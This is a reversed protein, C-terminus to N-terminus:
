RYERYPFKPKNELRIFEDYTMDETKPYLYFQGITKLIRIIAQIM